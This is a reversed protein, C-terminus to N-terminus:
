RGGEEMESVKIDWAGANVLERVRAVASGEVKETKEVTIPYVSGALDRHREIRRYTILSTIKPTADISMVEEGEQM